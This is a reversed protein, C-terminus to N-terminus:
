LEMKETKKISGIMILNVGNKQILSEAQGKGIFYNPTPSLFNFRKWGVIEAGATKALQKLEELPDYNSHIRDTVLLATEREGM